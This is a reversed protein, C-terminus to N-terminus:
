GVVGSALREGDGSRPDLPSGPRVAPIDWAVEVLREPKGRLWAAEAVKPYDSSKASILLNNEGTWALKPAAAGYAQFVRVGSWERERARFVAVETLSAVFHHRRERSLVAVLEGSPNALEKLIEMRGGQEQRGTVSEINREIGRISTAARIGAKIEGLMDAEARPPAGAGALAEDQWWLSPCSDIARCLREALEVLAVPGESRLEYAVPFSSAGRRNAMWRLLWAGQTRPARRVSMVTWGSGASDVLWAGVREGREFSRRSSWELEDAESAIEFTEGGWGKPVLGPGVMAVPYKFSPLAM